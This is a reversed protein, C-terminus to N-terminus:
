SSRSGRSPSGRSSSSCRSRDPRRRAGRDARRPDRAALEVDRRARGRGVAAPRRLADRRAPPDLPDHHGLSGEDDRADAGGDGAGQAAPVLRAGRPRPVHEPRRRPQRLARSGPLRGRDRPPRRGEPRPDHGARGRLLDRRQRRHLHRRHVQDADVQRRRQRRRAGDGRRHASRLRRRDAGAGLRLEQLHRAARADADDTATAANMYRRLTRTRPRQSRGRM